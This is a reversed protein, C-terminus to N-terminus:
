GEDSMSIKEQKRNINGNRDYCKRVTYGSEEYDDM